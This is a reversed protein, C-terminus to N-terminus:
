RGSSSHISICHLQNSETWLQFWDIKMSKPDASQPSLACVLGDDCPCLENLWYSLGGDPVFCSQGIQLKPKCVKDGHQRACCLGPLCDRNSTCRAGKHGPKAAMTCRGFMCDYGIACQNDSRCPEQETKYPKCLGYHLDCFLNLPCERDAHCTLQGPEDNSSLDDLRSLQATSISATQLPPPPPPPPTTTSIHHHKHRPRPSNKSHLKAVVYNPRSPSPVPSDHRLNSSSIDTELDHPNTILWNWFTATCSNLTLIVFICLSQATMGRQRNIQIWYIMHFLKFHFLTTANFYVFVVAFWCLSCLQHLAKLACLRM